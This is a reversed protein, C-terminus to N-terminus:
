QLETVTLEKPKGPGNSDKKQAAEERQIGQTRM